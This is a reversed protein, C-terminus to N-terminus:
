RKVWQYQKRAKKQGPKKREVRRADRTLFGAKKLPKRLSPNVINLARSIGLRVAGAQGSVGGGVVSCEVDFYGATSTELFPMLCHERQAPQFYHILNKGNVTFQGSGPRIWVKASSTKRRGLAYTGKLEHHIQAASKQKVPPVEAVVADDSLQAKQSEQSSSAELSSFRAQNLIKQQRLTFLPSFNKSLRPAQIFRAFM